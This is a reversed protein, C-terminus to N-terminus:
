DDDDDGDDSDTNQLLHGGTMGQFSLFLDGPSVTGNSPDFITADALYESDIINNAEFYANPARSVIFYREEWVEDRDVLGLDAMQVMDMYGYTSLEPDNTDRHEPIWFVDIPIVTLYAIPTTLRLFPEQGLVPASANNSPLGNNDSSYSALGVLLTRMDAQARTLKSRTQAELFNVVAVAALIAIIALVILLEILTFASQKM